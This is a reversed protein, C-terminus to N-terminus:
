YKTRYYLMTIAWTIISVVLVICLTVFVITNIFGSVIIGILLLFMMMKLTFLSYKQKIFILREDNKKILTKKAYEESTLIRAYYVVKCIVFTEGCVVILYNLVKIPINVYDSFHNISLPTLISIIIIPIAISISMFILKIKTTKKLKNLDYVNVRIVM